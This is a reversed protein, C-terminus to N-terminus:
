LMRRMMKIATNALVFTLSLPGLEKRMLQLGYSPPRNMGPPRLMLWHEALWSLRLLRTIALRADKKAQEDLWRLYQLCARLRLRGNKEGIDASINSGSNRWGVGGEQLSIIGGNRSFSIWAADDSCWAQPFSPIGERQFVSRSFVFENVSSMWRFELRGRLYEAASLRAPWDGSGAIVRDASDIMRMPFRYVCDTDLIGASGLRLFAEVSGEDMMDDDSFIWIWPEGRTANVCRVWHGALDKQGMNEDFRHYHLPMKRQWREASERILEPGADDFLYVQYNGEGQAAISELTRDLFAPRYALLVIALDAVSSPVKNM